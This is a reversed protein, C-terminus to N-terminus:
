AFVEDTISVAEEDVSGQGDVAVAITLSRQELREEVVLVKACARALEDEARDEVAMLPVLGAGSRDFQRRGTQLGAEIILPHSPGTAIRRGPGGAWFGVNLVAAVEGAAQFAHQGQGVLGHEPDRRLENGHLALGGSAERLGVM